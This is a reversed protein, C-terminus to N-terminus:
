NEKPDRGDAVARKEYLQELCGALTRGIDEGSGPDAVGAAPQGDPPVTAAPCIRVVRPKVSRLRDIDIQYKRETERQVELAAEWGRIVKEKEALRIEAIEGNKIRRTYEAGSAIGAVFAVAAWVVPNRLLALWMM